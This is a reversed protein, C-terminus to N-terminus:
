WGRTPWRRSSSWGCGTASVARADGGRGPARAADQRLRRCRDAHAAVHGRLLTEVEAIERERGVFSTLQRPLNNPQTDLTRLPPFDAPLEPVVLQFLHEPQALDKLGHAGMDRLAIGEPLDNALLERTTPSLM